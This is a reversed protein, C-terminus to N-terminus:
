QCDPNFLIDQLEIVKLYNKLRNEELIKILPNEHYFDLYKHLEGSNKHEEPFLIGVGFIAPIKVLDFEPFEIMFDEVATLVGNKKGGENTAYAFNGNGRFGGEILGQHGLTVGGKYSFEHIESPPISAPNYYLDRRGWPWGVDHLIAVFPNKKQLTIIKKLENYVTYYNHDGDVIYIDATCDFRDLAALSNELLLKYNSPYKKQLECVLESPKPDITTVRGGTLSITQLLIELHAGSESGIEVIHHPKIIDFLNSFLDSFESLSHILLSM